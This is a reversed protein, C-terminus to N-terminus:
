LRLRRKVLRILWGLVPIRQYFQSAADWHDLHALVTGDDALHVETVGDVHWPDRSAWRKPRMTMRWLIFGRDASRAIDVLEFRMDATDAFGQEFIAIMRDVGRVDNFPDRFRMDAACFEALRPLDAPTLGVFFAAYKRLAEGRVDDGSGDERLPV